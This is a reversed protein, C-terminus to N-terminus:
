DHLTAALNFTLKGFIPSPKIDFAWIFSHKQHQNTHHELATTAGRLSSELVLFEKHVIQTLSM